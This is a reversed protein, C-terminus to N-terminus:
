VCVFLAFSCLDLGFLTFVVLGPGVRYNVWRVVLVKTGIFAGGTGSILRQLTRPFAGM